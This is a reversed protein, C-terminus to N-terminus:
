LLGPVTRLSSSVANVSCISEKDRCVESELQFKVKIENYKPQKILTKRGKLRHIGHADPGHKTQDKSSLM